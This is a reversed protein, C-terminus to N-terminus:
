HPSVDVSRSAGAVGGGRGTRVTNLVLAAIIGAVLGLLVGLTAIMLVKPQFPEQPAVAPDIVKFAFEKNINALIIKKMEAEILRHLVQQLDVVTTRALQEQLYSIAKNSTEVSKARMGDNVAAVLENAWQAAVDADRWEVSLTVMGSSRDERIYSVSERFLESADWLTPVADADLDTRWRENEADWLRPFLVPLLNRDQIFRETFQRSRLTAIAENKKDKHDLNIGALAALSGFEKLPTMFQQNDDPDLVPSLVAEARYLPTSLLAATGFVLGCGLMLGLVAPWRSRVTRWVDVLSIEDEYRPQLEGRVAVQGVRPLSESDPHGVRDRVSKRRAYM